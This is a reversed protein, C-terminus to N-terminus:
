TVWILVFCFFLQLLIIFLRVYSPFLYYFHFIFNLTSSYLSCCPITTLIPPSSVLGLGICTRSISEGGCLAIQCKDSDYKHFRGSVKLLLWIDFVTLFWWSWLVVSFMGHWCKFSLCQVSHQRTQMCEELRLILHLLVLFPLSFLLYSWLYSIAGTCLVLCICINGVQFVLSWTPILAIQSLCLLTLLLPYPIMQRKCSCLLM